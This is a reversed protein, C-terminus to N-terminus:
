SKKTSDLFLHNGIKSVTLMKSAWKPLEIKSSIFHDAGNSYDPYEGDLVGRAIVKMENSITKNRKPENDLKMLKCIYSFQCVWKSDVFKKQEVVEVISSKFGPNETRNLIVQGVAIIGKKSEGRAEYYLAEALKSCNKDVNCRNITEKVAFSQTSFMLVATFTMFKIMKLYSLKKLEM